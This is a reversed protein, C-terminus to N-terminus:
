YKIIYWVNANKPRTENGGSSNINLGHAHNGAWGIAGDVHGGIRTYEPHSGGSGSDDGEIGNNWRHTHNGDTSTNGTHNHSGFNDNQYSGVNDETNGGSYKNVRATRDPDINQGNDVGRLFYGRLDPLRFNTSGDGGWSTGIAAFLEPYDNINVLRGDCVLFGKPLSTSVEGGFPLISGAPVGNQARSAAQAYPVSLLQTDSIKIFDTNNSSVEVRLFYDKNVWDLGYFAAQNVSGVMASFVGFADTKLEHIELFDDAGGRPYIAFRVFINEGGIANGSFDRAYGQFSFGKENILNQAIIQLIFAQFFIALLVLKKM